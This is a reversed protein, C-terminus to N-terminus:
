LGKQVLIGFKFFLFNYLKYNYLLLKYLHKPLVISGEWIRGWNDILRNKGIETLVPVNEGNKIDIALTVRSRHMDSLM